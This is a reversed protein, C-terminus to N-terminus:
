IVDFDVWDGSFAHPRTMDYRYRIVHPECYEGWCEKTNMIGTGNDEVVFTIPLNHNGAYKTCEHFVGMEAAMDGVFCWVHNSEKNMKIGMAVGVAIPVIGSVISSSFINLEKDFIHMSKGNLTRDILEEPTM